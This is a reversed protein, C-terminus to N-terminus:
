VTPVLTYHRAVKRPWQKGDWEVWDDWKEEPPYQSMRGDEHMVTTMEVKEPTRESDAFKPLGFESLKVETQGLNGNDDSKPTNM